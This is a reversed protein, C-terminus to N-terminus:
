AGSGTVQVIVDAIQRRVQRVDCHASVIAYQRQRKAARVEPSANLYDAILREFDSESVFTDEVPFLDECGEWAHSVAYCGSAIAEMPAVQLGEAYSNSVFIDINRYWAAPDTVLGSFTVRDQIDLRKVLQQMARYYDRFGAQEDGDIHLRLDYGNRLLRSFMLILEYPRKRPEMHCLTGIEGEFKRTAPTFRDLRIGEPVVVTKEAHIPLRECFAQQMGTSVLVVKDVNSWNIKDGWHYLEYQHLRTVIKCRKPLHSATVLYISAWEFFAVDVSAMLQDLDHHLQWRNAKTNLFPFNYTREHFVSVDFEEELYEAIDKFFHWTDSVVLGLKISM